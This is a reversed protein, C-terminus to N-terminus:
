VQVKQHQQCIRIGLHPNDTSHPNWPTLTHSVQSCYELEITPRALRKAEQEHLHNAAAAAAAATSSSTSDSSGAATTTTVSTLVARM